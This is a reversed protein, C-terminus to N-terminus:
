SGAWALKVGKVAEVSVLKYGYKNVIVQASVEVGFGLGNTQELAKGVLDPQAKIENMDGDDSVVWLVLSEGAAVTKGDQDTFSDWTKHRRTAYRGTVTSTAAM